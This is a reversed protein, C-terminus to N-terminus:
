EFELFDAMFRASSTMVVESTRVREVVAHAAPLPPPPPPPLPAPPDEPPADDLPPPVPPLEPVEDPVPPVDAPVPMPGPEVVFLVDVLLLPIEGFPMLPVPALEDLGVAGPMLGDAAVFLLLPLTEFALVPFPPVPTPPADVLPAAVVLESLAFAFAEATPWLV